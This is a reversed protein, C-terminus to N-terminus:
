LLKLKSHSFLLLLLLSTPCHPAMDPMGGLASLLDTVRVAVRATAM